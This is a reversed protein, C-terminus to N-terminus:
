IKKSIDININKEVEEKWKLLGESIKILEDLSKKKAPDFALLWAVACLLENWELNADQIKKLGSRVSGVFWEFGESM